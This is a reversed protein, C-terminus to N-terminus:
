SDSGAARLVTARAQELAVSRANLALLRQNLAQQLSPTAVKAQGDELTIDATNAAVFDVIGLADRAVADMTAAAQMLETAPATVAEDYVGDYVPALDPPLALGSRARDAKARAEQLDGASDALTKRAAEFSQRRQVIDDVSRITEAALVQRLPAAAKAMSEQFRTIVAYADDYDGVADKETDSLKGIPVLAGADIRSQLLHIFAAREEPERNGCATLALMSAVALSALCMRWIAM